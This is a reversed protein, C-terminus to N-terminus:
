HRRSGRKRRPRSAKSKRSRGKRSKRGKRAKSAGRRRRRGGALEEEPEVADDSTVADYAENASVRQVSNGNAVSEMEAVLRNYIEETSEDIGTM